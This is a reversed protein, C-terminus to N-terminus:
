LGFRLIEIKPSVQIATLVHRPYSAYIVSEDPRRVVGVQEVNKPQQYVTDSVLQPRSSYLLSFRKWRRWFMVISLSWAIILLAIVVADALTM